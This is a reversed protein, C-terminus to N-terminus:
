LLTRAGTQPMAKSYTVKQSYPVLNLPAEAYVHISKHHSVFFIFSLSHITMALVFASCLFGCLVADLDKRLGVHM